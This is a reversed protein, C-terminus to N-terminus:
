FPIPNLRFGQRLLKMINSVFSKLDNIPCRLNRICFIVRQAALRSTEYLRCKSPDAWYLLENYEFPPFPERVWLMLKYFGKEGRTKNRNFIGKQTNNATIKELVHPVPLICTYWQSRFKWTDLIQLNFLLIIRPLKDYFFKILNRGNETFYIKLTWISKLYKLICWITEKATFYWLLIWFKRSAKSLRSM